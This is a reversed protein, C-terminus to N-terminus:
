VDGNEDGRKNELRIAAVETNVYNENEENMGNVGNSKKSTVKLLKRKAARRAVRNGYTAAYQLCEPLGSAILVRFFGCRAAISNKKGMVEVVNSHMIIKSSM